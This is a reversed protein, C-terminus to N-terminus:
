PRRKPAGLAENKKQGANPHAAEENKKPAALPRISLFSARKKMANEPKERCPYNFCLLAYKGEFFRRFIELFRLFELYTPRRKPACSAAEENKKIAPTQTNQMRDIKKIPPPGPILFFCLGPM